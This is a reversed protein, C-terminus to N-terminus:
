AQFGSSILISIIYNLLAGVLLIFVLGGIANTIKAQAKKLADPEGKSRVYELGALLFNVIFLFIAAYFLFNSLVKIFQLPSNITVNKALAATVFGTQVLNCIKPCPISTLEGVTCLAGELNARCTCRYFNSNNIETRTPGAGFYENLCQTETKGTRVCNLISNRKTTEDEPTIETKTSPPVLLFM